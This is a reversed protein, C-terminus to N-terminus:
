SLTSSAVDLDSRSDSQWSCLALNCWGLILGLIQFHIKLGCVLGLEVGM